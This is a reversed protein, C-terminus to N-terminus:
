FQVDETVQEVLHSQDSDWKCSCSLHYTSDDHTKNIKGHTKWRLSKHNEGEM